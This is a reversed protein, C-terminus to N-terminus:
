VRTTGECSIPLSCFVDGSKTFKKKSAYEKQGFSNNKIERYIIYVCSNPLFVSSASTAVLNKVHMQFASPELIQRKALHRAHSRKHNKCTKGSLYRSLVEFCVISISMLWFRNFCILIILDSVISESRCILDRLCFWM